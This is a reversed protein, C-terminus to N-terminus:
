CETRLLQSEESEKLSLKVSMCLVTSVGIIFYRIESGQATDDTQSIDVLLLCYFAIAASVEEHGGRRLGHLTAQV